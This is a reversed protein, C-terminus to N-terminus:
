RSVSFFSDVEIQGFRLVGNFSLVDVILFCTEAKQGGLMGPYTCPSGIKFGQVETKM